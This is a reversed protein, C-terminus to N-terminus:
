LLAHIYGQAEIRVVLSTAGEGKININTEGSSPIGLSNFTFSYSGTPPVEFEIGNNSNIVVTTADVIINNGVNTTIIVCGNNQDIGLRLKSVTVMHCSDNNTQQMARLQIARLKTVVESRYGYEEFGNSGLMKPAVTAALIGLLIIVLVLEILTFGHNAAQINKNILPSSKKLKLKSM